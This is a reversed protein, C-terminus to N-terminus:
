SSAQKSVTVIFYGIPVEGELEIIAFRDNIRRPPSKVKGEGEFEVTLRNVAIPHKFAIFLSCSKTEGNEKNRVYSHGLINWCRPQRSVKPDCKYSKIHLELRTYHSEVDRILLKGFGVIVSGLTLGALFPSITLIPWIILCIGTSFGLWALSKPMEKVLHRLFFLAISIGVGAITVGIQINSFIGM